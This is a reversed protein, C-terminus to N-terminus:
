IAVVIGCRPLFNRAERIALPPVADLARDLLRSLVVSGRISTLKRCRRIVIFVRSKWSTSASVRIGEDIFFDMLEDVASLSRAGIVCIVHFLVRVACRTFAEHRSRADRERVANAAACDHLLSSRRPQRRCASRKRSLVRCWEDNILMGNTEISHSIGASGPAARRTAAFAQRYWDIPLVLPEGSHWVVTFDPAALQQWCRFSPQKLSISRCGTVTMGCWALLTDRLRYQLVTGISSHSARGALM